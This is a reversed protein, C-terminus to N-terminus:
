KSLSCWRTALRAALRAHFPDNRADLGFPVDVLDRIIVGVFSTVVDRVAEDFCQLFGIPRDALM